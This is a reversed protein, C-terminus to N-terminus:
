LLVLTRKTDRLGQKLEMVEKVEDGVVKGIPNATATM